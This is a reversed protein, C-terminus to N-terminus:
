RKTTARGACWPVRAPWYPRVRGRAQVLRGVGTLLQTVGLGLVISLLVALYQFEETSTVPRPILTLPAPAPTAARWAPPRRVAATPGSSTTCVLADSIGAPDSSPRRVDTLHEGRRAPVVTGLPGAERGVPLRM